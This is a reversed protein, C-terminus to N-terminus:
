HPQPDTESRHSESVGNENVAEVEAELHITLGEARLREALVARIAPDEKELISAGHHVITVQAGLRQMAQGLEVGNPGGGVVLLRKPLERLDWVHQNDYLRVQEAGPVQLQEPRSGTAVVLKRGTYTHGNIEVAHDGM